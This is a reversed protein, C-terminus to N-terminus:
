DMGWKELVSYVVPCVNCRCDDDKLEVPMTSSEYLVAAITAAVTLKKGSALKMVCADYKAKAKAEREAQRAAARTARAAGM